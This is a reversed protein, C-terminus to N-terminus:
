SLSVPPSRLGLRYLRILNRCPSFNLYSLLASAPVYNISPLSGILLLDPHLLLGDNPGDSDQTQSEFCLTEGCFWFYQFRRAHYNDLIINSLLLAVFFLLKM